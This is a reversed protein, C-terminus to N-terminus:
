SVRVVPQSTARPARNRMCFSATGLEWPTCRVPKYNRKDLYFTPDAPVSYVPFQEPDPLNKRQHNNTPGISMLPGRVETQLHFEYMSLEEVTPEMDTAFLCIRLTQCM